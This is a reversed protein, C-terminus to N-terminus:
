HGRWIAANSALVDLSTGVKDLVGPLDVYNVAGMAVGVWYAGANAPITFGVDNLAQFTEAHYHHAGTM